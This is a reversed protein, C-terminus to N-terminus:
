CRTGRMPRASIATGAAKVVLRLNNDRAFDVAAAVDAATEAAVCYASPESSWADIWGMTQTLAPHDGIYYPNKLERFIERCADGVPADRCAALPSRVAVLRGGIQQRLREWSAPSPWAADSPRVRAVTPQVAAARGAALLPLAAASRLFDRRNM